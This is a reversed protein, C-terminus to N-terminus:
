LENTMKYKRLLTVTQEKNDGIETCLAGLFLSM